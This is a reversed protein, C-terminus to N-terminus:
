PGNDITDQEAQREAELIEPTESENAPERLPVVYEHEKQLNSIAICHSPM